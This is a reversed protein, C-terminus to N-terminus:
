PSFYKVSALAKVRAAALLSQAAIRHSSPSRLHSRIRLVDLRVVLIHLLYLLSLSWLALLTISFPERIKWLFNDCEKFLKDFYTSHLVNRLQDCFNSCTKSANEKNLAAPAGFTFGYKYLTPMMGRCQVMSECHCNASKTKDNTLGHEGRRCTEARLCGRCGWDQCFIDKIANYLSELYSWLSWPLYVAWSLYLKSHSKGLYSYYDSCLTYIYPACLANSCATAMCLSSLSGKKTEDAQINVISTHYKTADHSSQSSGYADRLADTLKGPEDYLSISRDDIAKKFANEILHSGYENWKNVLSLAFGFHEPLTSPAKTALCFLSALYTDGFLNRLVNSLDEGKRTTGSFGRFGLPTLCPMGPKGTPCTNCKPKCGIGSLQHPLCGVLSDTLYSMLPSTPQCNPQCNPQCKAQCKPQCKPQCKSESKSHKTCQWKAQTINKGYHCDGWGYDSEGVRCQFFLFRLPPFMRRLIDLLTDLCEAGSKPYYLKMSNDYFDCAYMTHEDGFGLVTTLISSSISAINTLVDQFHKYTVKNPYSDIYFSEFDFAMLGDDDAGLPNSPTELKESISSLLASYVSNYTLGACWLLMEYVSCPPKTAFSTAYHGVAYYDQLCHYLKQLPYESDEHKHYVHKYDTETVLLDYVKQGKCDDKNRLHGNQKGAADSVEYGCKQFFHGLPNETELITVKRKDKITAIGLHVPFDKWNNKCRKRLRGLDNNLTELLSLFTKACNKGDAERLFDVLSPHGEYTNVYAKGIEGLFDQLGSKLVDLLPSNLQAFKTPRMSDLFKEFEERQSAFTKSFFGGSLALFLRRAYLELDEFFKEIPDKTSPSPSPQSTPPSPPQPQHNTPPTTRPMGVRHASGPVNPSQRDAQMNTAPRARYGGGSIPPPVPRLSPTPPKPKTDPLLQYKIYETVPDLYWQLRETLEKFDQHTRVAELIGKQEHMKSLLGKVGNAMDANIIDYVKKYQRNALAKLATLDAQRANAFLMRMETTVKHFADEAKELLATQIKDVNINLTNHASFVASYVAKMANTLAEDAYDINKDINNIHSQLLEIDQRLNEMLKWVNIKAEDVKGPLRELTNVTAMVKNIAQKIRSGENDLLHTTQLSSIDTKVQQLGKTAPTLPTNKLGDELTKLKDLVSNGTASAGDPSDQLDRQLKDLAQTINQVADGIQRTHTPLQGNLDNLTSQIKALGSKTSFWSEDIDNGLGKKLEELLPKIGKFKIAKGEIASTRNGSVLGTLATLHSHIATELTTVEQIDTNTDNVAKTNGSTFKNLLERGVTNFQDNIASKNTEYRSFYQSAKDLVVKSGSEEKFHQRLKETLKSKIQGITTDVDIANKKQYEQIAKLILDARLPFQPIHKGADELLKGLGEDVKLHLKMATFGPSSDYSYSSGTALPVGKTVAAVVTDVYQTINNKVDEKARFLGARLDGDLTTVTQQASSVLDSLSSEAAQYAKLLKEAKDKLAKAKIGIQTKPGKPSKSDVVKQLITECKTKADDVVKGAEQNWRELNKIDGDIMSKVSDIEDKDGTISRLKMRISNGSVNEKKLADFVTRAKTQAASRVGEAGEIWKNLEDVQANLETGVSTVAAMIADVQHELPCKETDRKNIETMDDKLGVIAQLIENKYGEDFKALLKGIERKADKVAYRLHGFKEKRKDNMNRMDALIRDFENKLKLKLVLSEKEIKVKMEGEQEELRKDLLMTGDKFLPNAALSKMHEIVGKVPVFEHMIQNNLSRDLVNIYYNELRDTEQEVKQVTSQWADLQLQLKLGAKRSVEKYYDGILASLGETVAKTKNGVEGNYKGLWGKVKTVSASLGDRGTGILSCLDRLVNDLRSGSDLMNDYTTVNDDSKVSELVGHLFSMVGDCLRDLDSYVIGKGDYGKSTEHYGLFM